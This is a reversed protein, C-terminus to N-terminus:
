FFEVFFMNGIMSCGFFVIINIVFFIFIVGCMILVIEDIVGILVVKLFRIFGDVSEGSVENGILVVELVLLVFLVYGLVSVVCFLLVMLGGFVFRLVNEYGILVLNGVEVKM